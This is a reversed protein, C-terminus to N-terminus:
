QIAMGSRAQLFGAIQMFTEKNPLMSQMLRVKGRTHHIELFAQGNVSWGKIKQIDRFNVTKPASSYVTPPLTISNASLTLEGNHNATAFLNLFFHIAAAANIASLVWYFITAGSQSFRFIGNITLAADNTMAVWAMFGALLMTFLLGMLLKGTQVRYPVTQKNM